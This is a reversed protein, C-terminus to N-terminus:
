GELFSEPTRAPADMGAELTICDTCPKLRAIFVSPLGASRRAETFGAQDYAPQHCLTTDADVDTARHKLQGDATAVNIM